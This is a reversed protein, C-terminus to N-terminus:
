HPTKSNDKFMEHSDPPQEIDLTLPYVARGSLYVNTPSPRSGGEYSIRPHFIPLSLGGSLKYIYMQACSFSQRNYYPFARKKKHM